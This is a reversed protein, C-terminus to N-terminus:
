LEHRDFTAMVRRSSRSSRELESRRRKRHGPTSERTKERERQGEGERGLSSFRTLSTESVADFTDLKQGLVRVVRGNKWINM